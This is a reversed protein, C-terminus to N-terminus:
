RTGVAIPNSEYSLENIPTIKGDTMSFVKWLTGNGTPAYYIYPKDRGAVYLKVMAGSQSLASSNSSYKNSYDHVYYTYTGGVNLYVSTTEPGYSTTDDVDLKNYTQGNLNFNKSSFYVHFKGGEATPGVLHSDM